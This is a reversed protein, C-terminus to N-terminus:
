PHGGDRYHEVTARIAGIWKQRHDTDPILIGDAVAKAALSYVEVAQEDTVGHFQVVADPPDMLLGRGRGLPWTHPDPVEQDPDLAFVMLEYEAEPYHKVAAPVGEVPRLSVGLMIHWNWHPHANPAFMLYTALSVALRPDGDDQPPDVSWVKAAPGDYTPKIEDMWAPSTMGGVIGTSGADNVDTM